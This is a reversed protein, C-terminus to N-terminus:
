GFVLYKWRMKIWHLHRALGTWRNKEPGRSGGLLGSIDTSQELCEFGSDM